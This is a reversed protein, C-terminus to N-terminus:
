AKPKVGTVRNLGPAQLALFGVHPAQEETRVSRYRHTAAGKM